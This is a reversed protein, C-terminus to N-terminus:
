AMSRPIVLPKVFGTRQTVSFPKECLFKRGWAVSLWPISEKRPQVHSLWVWLRKFEKTDWLHNASSSMGESSHLCITQRGMQPLTKEKEQSKIRVGFSASVTLPRKKSYASGLYFKGDDIQGDRTREWGTQEERLFTKNSHCCRIMLTFSFSFVKKPRVNPVNSSRMIWTKNRNSCCGKRREQLYFRTM